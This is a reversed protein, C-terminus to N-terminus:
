LMTAIVEAADLVDAVVHEANSGKAYQEGYGTRV